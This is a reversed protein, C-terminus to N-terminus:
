ERNIINSIINILENSIDISCAHRSNKLYDINVWKAKQAYIKEDEDFGDDSIDGSIINVLYYILYSQYDKNKHHFFSTYM